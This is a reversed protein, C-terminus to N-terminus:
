QTTHLVTTSQGSAVEYSQTPPRQSCREVSAPLAVVVMEVAHVRLESQVKTSREHQRGQVSGAIVSLIAMLTADTASQCVFTQLLTPAHGGHTGGCPGKMAIHLAPRQSVTSMMCSFPHKALWNQTTTGASQQAQPARVFRVSTTASPCPNETGHVSDQAGHGPPTVSGVSM